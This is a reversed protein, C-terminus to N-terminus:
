IQKVPFSLVFTTGKDVESEVFIEGGNNKVLEYSISLGLGTGKGPEKTTFFPDFIKDMIARPIGMGTDSVKVFVKDNEAYTKFTIVGRDKIAHAANILLNIFVQGIQQGNCEIMPIDGLEQKLEAKFKIESLVIHLIGEFIKNLNFASRSELDKRAFSKLDKVILSIREVGNLTESMLNNLDKFITDIKNKQELESMEKELLAAKEYDKDKLAQKILKYRGLIDIINKLYQDLVAINSGVFGLPNNIEHAIGAALQGLSALKESQILQNQTKKLEENAKRLHSLMNNLKIENALLDANVKELMKNKLEILSEAVKRETIDRALGVIGELRGKKDRMVSASFVVPVNTGNKSKYNMEYDTVFGTKVLEEVIKEQFEKQDESNADSFITDVSRNMLEDESYGLVKLGAPNIKIIKGKPDVVMLIEVMSRLINDTFEKARLLEDRSRHLEETMQNFSDTLYAIEDSGKVPINVDMDGRAIKRMAGVLKRIPRVTISTVFTTIAGAILIILATIAITIDQSQEEFEKAERLSLGVRVVGIKKEVMPRKKSSGSETEFLSTEDGPIDVQKTIVPVAVDYYSEYNNLSILQVIPEVAKLAKPTAEAYEKKLGTDVGRSALVNGDLDHIVCYAVQSQQMIGGILNTLADTNDTLVGYEANYALNRAMVVGMQGLDSHIIQNIHKTFFIGLISAVCVVLLTTALITKVRIGFTIKRATM